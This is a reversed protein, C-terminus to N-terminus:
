VRIIFHEKEQEKRIFALGIHYLDISVTVNSLNKILAWRKEIISNSHIADFIYVTDNHAAYLSKEFSQPTLTKLATKNFYILDFKTEAFNDLKDLNSTKSIQTNSGMSALELQSINNSNDIELITKTDYYDIIRSLLSVRKSLFYKRIISLHKTQHKKSSNQNLINGPTKSYLCKTTLDYVFPSHVGHQNTSKILFSLYWMLEFFM